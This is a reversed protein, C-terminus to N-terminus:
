GAPGHGGTVRAAEIVEAIALNELGRPRSALYDAYRRGTAEPIAAAAQASEAHVLLPVGLDRVV